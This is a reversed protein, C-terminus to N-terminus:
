ALYIFDTAGHWFTDESIRVHATQDPGESDALLIMPFQLFYSHCFARNISQAYVPHDSGACKARTRLCNKAQRPGSSTTRKVKTM